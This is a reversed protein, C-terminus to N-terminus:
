INNLQVYKYIYSWLSGQLRLETTHVSVKEVTWVTDPDQEYGACVRIKQINGVEGVDLEQFYNGKLKFVLDSM